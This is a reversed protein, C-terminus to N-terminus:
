YTFELDVPIRGEADRGRMQAIDALARALNTDPRRERVTGSVLGTRTAPTLKVTGVVELPGSGSDALTADISGDPAVATSAFHLTYGGLNAGDAVRLLRLDDLRLEGSVRTLHTFDAEVRPLAIAATGRWAPEQGKADLDEIPGGGQIDAAQIGGSHLTAVGETAFRGKVWHLDLSLQARLLDGPRLQWEIAGAERGLVELRGAAGHWVTGSLDEAHIAAPLMRTLLSAPLASAGMVVAAIVALPLVLWVLRRRPAQAVPDTSRKRSPSAPM